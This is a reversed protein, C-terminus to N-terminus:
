QNQNSKKLLLLLKTSSTSNSYNLAKSLDYNDIITAFWPNDHTDDLMLCIMRCTVSIDHRDDLLQCVVDCEILKHYIELLFHDTCVRM